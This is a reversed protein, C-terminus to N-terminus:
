MLIRELKTTLKWGGRKRGVGSTWETRVRVLKPYNWGLQEQKPGAAPRFLGDGDEKLSGVWVGGKKSGKKNLRHVLEFSIQKSEPDKTVLAMPHEDAVPGWNVHAAGSPLAIAKKLQPLEPVRPTRPNLVAGRRAKKPTGQDDEEESEEEKSGSKRGAAGKKRALLTAASPPRGRKRKAPPTEEEEESEEESTSDYLDPYFISMDLQVGDPLAGCECQLCDRGVPMWEPVAFNVAEAANFGLNFGAHYAAANLVIFEGPRQKAQTFPVNYAKLVKPSIVVDKHRVFAPCARAAEPFLQKAMADFKPADKPSVCYWVKPAGLHMFNVSMLDCDEKHWGFFSRWSGFYTMPTNVGVIQPVKYEKFLCNIHRLNWGWPVNKDFMSIPTDAGYLPPNFSISSWFARELMDDDSHGRKPPKASPATAKAQFEVASMPKQEELICM